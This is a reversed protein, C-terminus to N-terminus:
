KPVFAFDMRLIWKPWSSVGSIFCIMDTKMGCLVACVADVQTSNHPWETCLVRMKPPCPLVLLARRQSFPGVWHRDGPGVDPSDQTYVALFVM